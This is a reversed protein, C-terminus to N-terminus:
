SLQCQSSVIEDEMKFSVIQRWQGMAKGECQNHDAMGDGERSARKHFCAGEFREQQLIAQLYCSVIDEDLSKKGCLSVFM